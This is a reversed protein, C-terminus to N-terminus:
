YSRKHSFPTWSVLKSFEHISISFYNALQQELFFPVVNSLSPENCTILSILYNDPSEFIAQLCCNGVSRLQFLKLIVKNNKNKTTCIHSTRMPNQMFLSLFSINFYISIFTLLKLHNFKTFYLRRRNANANLLTM